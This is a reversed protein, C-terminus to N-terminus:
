RVRNRAFDAIVGAVISVIVVVTWILWLNSIAGGGPDVDSTCLMAGLIYGVMYGVASMIMTAKSKILLSLLIVVVVAIALVTPWQKMGHADFFVFRCLVYSVALIAFSLLGWLVTKKM